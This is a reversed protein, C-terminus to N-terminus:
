NTTGVDQDLPLLVGGGSDKSPEIFRVGKAELARQVADKIRITRALGKELRELSARGIGAHMALEEQSMGIGLRAM